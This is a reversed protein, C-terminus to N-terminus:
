PTGDTSCSSVASAARDGGLIPIEDVRQRRVHFRELIARVRGVQCPQVLDGRQDLRADSNSAHAATYPRGAASRNCRCSAVRRNRCSYVPRLKSSRARWDYRSWTCAAYTAASSAQRPCRTLLTPRAAPNVPPRQEGPWEDPAVFYALSSSMSHHSAHVPPDREVLPALLQERAGAGSVGPKATGPPRQLPAAVGGILRCWRFRGDGFPSV